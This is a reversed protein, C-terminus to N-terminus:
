RGLLRGLWSKHLEFGEMMWIDFPWKAISTLFRKGDPHISFGALSDTSAPLDIPALFRDAGTKVDVSYLQWQAGDGTTNRFIGYLQSGDKSFGYVQLKRETLKRATRGDPAILSLGDVTPFVIWDGTPSWQPAPYRLWRPIEAPGIEALVVPISASAPRIKALQVNPGSRRLYLVQQGDPSWVPAAIGIGVDLTAPPGGSANSLMLKQVPNSSSTFVFRSGDPAWRPSSVTAAEPVVLRRSFGDAASLDEIALSGSRNTSVLYHTGSPAWDPWWSVVGSGGMATRVTATPLSIELVNWEPKGSVYAIRKGDRSVSFDLIPEPFTYLMRRSGTVTDSRYLTGTGNSPSVESILSHRSDAFWASSAVNPLGNGPERRAAGSPYALFWREPGVVFLKTGDPSFRAVFVASNPFPPEGFKRPQGGGLATIWLKGDRVFALTKGNPHITASQVGGLILEPMGGSSPVAWLGNASLYYVTSGSPAWFPSACRASSHTLQAAEPSDIAKIFVQDIGHVNTTFAISKGDPSWDPSRETADQRSLPTFKYASLDPGAPPILLAVLAGGVAVGAVALALMPLIRRRKPVVATAPTQVSGSAQSLRERIQRLERFLDRTSDYRDAPDKSLLREIIWRLPAPVGAPLPEADERIIATMTEAASARQFPRRGAALEYLVLGFSFQDSQATLNIEGRAQEPSMYNITGVTTGPDTLSLTRTAEAQSPAAQKALGFDLIKVRGDRTVLINDPKLDRHILGATHAAALGDAIQIALDLLKRPSETPAIPSGEVLEMVLYEPGVDYLQCINPHNLAAAARAEREFRESFKEQAVKIAVVRDLRTDVAKYVEGMGGAGIAALIQYPGLRDGASLPM